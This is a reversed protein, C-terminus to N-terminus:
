KAYDRNYNKPTTTSYSVKGNELRIGKYYFLESVTVFQYGQIELTAMIENTAEATSEYLSHMLIIKGDGGHTLVEDIVRKTIDDVKANYTEESVKTKDVVGKNWDETDLYWNIMPMPLNKAMYDLTDNGGPMRIYVPAYGVTQALLLNNRNIQTWFEKKDCDEKRFAVHSYTHSAIEHGAAALAQISRKCSKYNDIREGLTFFTCKANYREFIELLQSEVKEYPGDDYTFAIMPRNVDLDQRVQLGVPNFYLDMYMFARAESLKVEYTFEKHMLDTLTDNGFIFTVKDNAIYFSDFDNRNYVEDYSVFSTKGIVPDKEPAYTQLREKLIALYTERFVMYAGLRRGTETEFVYGAQHIVKGDSTFNALVSTFAPYAWCEVSAKIDKADNGAWASSKSFEESVLDDVTGRIKESVQMLNGITGIVAEPTATPVPTNTPVPTPTSTAKAGTTPVTTPTNNAKVEPTATLLAVARTPTPTTKGNNNRNKGGRGNLFLLVGVLALLIIVIAIMVFMIIRTKNIRGFKPTNM